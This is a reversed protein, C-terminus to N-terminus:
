DRLKITLLESEHKTMVNIFQDRWASACHGIDFNDLIRRRGKAGLISALSPETMLRLIADALEQPNEPQVMLACDSDGVLEVFGDVKTLIVPMGTVMAEAAAIGFPERLSPLVVVDAALFLNFLSPHSLPPNLRIVKDLECDSICRLIDDYYGYKEGLFIAKALIKNQEKLIALARLLYIHGKKKILRAPVVILFEDSGVGHSDRIIRREDGSIQTPISKTSVGNYVVKVDDWGFYDQYDKAVANSVGVRANARSNLWGEISTKIKGLMSKPPAKSYGESHLTVISQVNSFLLKVLQVYLNGFYLHGWLVDFKGKSLIKQLKILGEVLSWRHSINLRHVQYGMTELDIGLDDSWSFLDVFEIEVGLKKLEPALSFVLQEAGGDRGLTEIICLVRIKKTTDESMNMM